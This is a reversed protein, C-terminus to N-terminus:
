EDLNFIQGALFIGGGLGATGIAHLAASMGPVRESLLAGIVHFFAVLLVVLGIRFQPSLADWHASVFLLVGSALMLAGFALAVLIPLRLGGSDAHEAEFARIRAATTADLVGADTWRDLLRGINAPM